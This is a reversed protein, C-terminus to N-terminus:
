PCALDLEEGNWGSILKRGGHAPGVLRDLAEGGPFGFTLMIRGGARLFRLLGACYVVDEAYAVLAKQDAFERQPM